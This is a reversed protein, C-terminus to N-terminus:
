LDGEGGGPVKVDTRSVIGEGSYSRGVAPATNKVM